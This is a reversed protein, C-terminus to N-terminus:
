FSLLELPTCVTPLQWGQRAAEKELRRLVHANALHRCNWTLLYDAGAHSAAALHIADARMTEPIAGTELFSLAAAEVESGIEILPFGALAKLREAAALPDGASAERLTEASTVCDYLPRQNDWWDRTVEQHAALVLDRSPKAVLYSVVTTEIYVIEPM